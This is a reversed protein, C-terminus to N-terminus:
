TAQRSHYTEISNWRLTTWDAIARARGGIKVCMCSRRNGLVKAEFLHRPITTNSLSKAPREDIARCRLLTSNSSSSPWLVLITHPIFCHGSGSPELLIVKQVQKQV